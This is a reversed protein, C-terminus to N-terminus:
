LAIRIGASGHFGSFDFALPRGDMDPFITGQRVAPLGSTDWTTDRTATMTRVRALHYGGGLFLSLRTNVRIGAEMGLQMAISTLGQWTSTASDSKTAPMFPYKYEFRSTDTLTAVGLGAYLTGRLYVGSDGSREIWGGAMASWFATTLYASSAQHYPGDVAFDAVIRAPSFWSFRLGAGQDPTMAYGVDATLMPGGTGGKVGALAKGGSSDSYADAAEQYAKRYQSAIDGFRAGAYGTGVAIRLKTGEPHYDSYLGSDACVATV